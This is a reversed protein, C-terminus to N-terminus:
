NIFAELETKLQEYTFGREHFSRRDTNYILTAPIGGGWDESVKPIWQNQKPDDLIVVKSQIGKNEVYPELRSKWMNPLDLSVLIVEVGNEREEANIREFHPMEELCPKCWTAWFNIIYTKGDDQHLLPEFSEFDLVPFAVDAADALPDGVQSGLVEGSVEQQDSKKEGCGVLLFLLGFFSFLRSM